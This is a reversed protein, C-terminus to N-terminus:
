KKWILSIIGKVAVGVAMGFAFILWFGADSPKSAISDSFVVLNSLTIIVVVLMIIVPNRKRM